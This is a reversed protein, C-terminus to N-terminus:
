MEVATKLWSYVVAFVILLITLIKWEVSVHYAKCTFEHVALHPDLRAGLTWHSSLSILSSSTGETMHDFHVIFLHFESPVMHNQINSSSMALASSREGYSRTSVVNLFSPMGLPQTHTHLHSHKFESM